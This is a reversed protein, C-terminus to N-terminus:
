VKEWHLKCFTAQLGKRICQCLSAKNKNYEKAAKTISNYEKGTEICRVKICNYSKKHLARWAHLNNQAYSNWELNELRNDTRIGNKHNITPLNLPNPIFAKAIIRHANYRTRKGNKCLGVRLYGTEGVEQNLIREKHERDCPKNYFEWCVKRYLSKFRGLNSVQYLGEYGEIDKWIEVM